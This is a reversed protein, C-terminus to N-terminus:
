SWRIARRHTKILKPALTGRRSELRDLSVEKWSKESLLFSGDKWQLLSGRKAGEPLDAKPLKVRELFVESGVRTRDRNLLKVRGDEYDQRYTLWAGDDLEALPTEKVRTQTNPTIRLQAGESERLPTRAIPPKPRRAKITLPGLATHKPVALGVMGRSAGDVGLTVRQPGPSIGAVVFTGDDRTVSIARGIRISFGALPQGTDKDLLQGSLVSTDALKAASKQIEALKYLSPPDSIKHKTVGDTIALELTRLGSDALKAVSDIGADVLCEAINPSVQDVTLLWAAAHWARLEGLPLSPDARHLAAPKAYLLQYLSSIQRAQLREAYQPGVGEIDTVPQYLKNVLGDKGPFIASELSLDCV